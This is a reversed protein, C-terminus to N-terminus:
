CVRFFVSLVRNEALWWASFFVNPQVFSPLSIYNQLATEHTNSLLKVKKQVIHQVTLLRFYLNAENKLAFSWV